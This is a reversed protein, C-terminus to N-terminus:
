SIACDSSTSRRRWRRAGIAALGVGLLAVTTPEPVAASLPFVFETLAEDTREAFARPDIRLSGSSVIVRLSFIGDALPPNNSV